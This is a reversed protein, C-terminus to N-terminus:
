HFVDLVTVTAGFAVAMSSLGILAYFRRERVANLREVRREARPRVPVKDAVVPAVTAPPVVAVAPSAHPTATRMPVAPVPGPASVLGPATGVPSPSPVSPDRVSPDRVSPDRVLPLEATDASSAMM